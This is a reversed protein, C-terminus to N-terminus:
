FIENMDRDLKKVSDDENFLFTLISDPKPLINGFTIGYKNWYTALIKAYHVNNWEDYIPKKSFGQIPLASVNVAEQPTSPLITVYKPIRNLLRNKYAVKASLEDFQIPHLPHDAFKLFYDKLIIEQSGNDEFCAIIGVGNMRIAFSLGEISDHYDFNLENDEYEHVKVIFISWPHFHNFIFIKKVSQLFGHLTRYRELHYKTVITGQQKHKRNFLLSLEKFLLGFFIKGTWQFINLKDVTIFADYGINVHKKIVNEVKSLHENNCEMCCPITLNRYPIFTKNLLGIEVDFLNYKELLWLPFVHENSKANELKIGCLFCNDYSFSLSDFPRYVTEIEM